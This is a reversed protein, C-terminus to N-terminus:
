RNSISLNFDLNRIALERYLSISSFSFYPLRTAKRTAFNCQGPTIGVKSIGFKRRRSAVFRFPFELETKRPDAGQATAIKGIRRDASYNCLAVAAVTFYGVAM